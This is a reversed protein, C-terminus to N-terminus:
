GHVVGGGVLFRPGLDQVLGHTVVREAQEDGMARSAKRGVQQREFKLKRPQALATIGCGGGQQPGMHRAGVRKPNFGCLAGFHEHDKLARLGIDRGAPVGGLGFGALDHGRPVVDHHLGTPAHAIHM